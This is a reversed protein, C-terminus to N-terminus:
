LFADYNILYFLMNVLNNFRQWNTDSIKLDNNIQHHDYCFKKLEYLRVLMLYTTDWRTSNDLVAQKLCDKKLLVAYSQSRLVKVVQLKYFTLM